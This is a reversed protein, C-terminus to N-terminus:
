ERQQGNTQGPNEPGAATSPSSPISPLSRVFGFKMDPVIMHEPPGQCLCGKIQSLKNYPDIDEEPEGAIGMSKISSHM